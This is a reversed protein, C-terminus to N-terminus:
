AVDTKMNEAQTKKEPLQALIIAAFMLICGLLEKASLAQHLLVWGALVSFVSELSLILSAITPSMNKQGVIQLTYAVGCSMVGAYLIPVKAAIIQSLDPKEFLFMGTCCIIGCVLFQICSIVVGDAKPSFYDILLIHFTFAIACLLLLIDGSQLVMEGAASSGAMCLLYLGALSLVIAIGIKGSLKKGIFIGFVPVLVIYLATIFGAKGVTTTQIGFQQLTSGLTLAIGCLIGGIISMKNVKKREIPNPQQGAKNKRSNVLLIYPVLVISGILSRIGNMTFPGIYDMAVSQAVFACGWIFAALFLLCTNKLKMNNERWSKEIYLSDREIGIQKSLSVKYKM